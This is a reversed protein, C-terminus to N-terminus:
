EFFASYPGGRFHDRLEAYNKVTESLPRSEQRQLQPRGSLRHPPIRLFDWVRDLCIDPQDLLDEYWMVHVMEPAFRDFVSRYFAEASLFYDECDAVPLTVQPPVPAPGDASHVLWQGSKRAQKFSRLSELLNRRRLLIVKLQPWSAMEEFFTPRERFQPENIKCGVRSVEYKGDWKPFNVFALELLETDSMVSRDVAPWGTDWPNLLEGNSSVYPHENALAELYHTGARPLALIVFPEPRVAASPNRQSM